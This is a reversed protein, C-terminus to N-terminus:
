LYKLPLAVLIEQFIPTPDSVSSDFSVRTVSGLSHHRKHGSLHPYRPPTFLPHPVDPIKLLHNSVQVQSKLTLVPSFICIHSGEAYLHCKFDSITLLSFIICTFKLAGTSLSGKAFSPWAAKSSITTM